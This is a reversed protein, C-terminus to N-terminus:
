NQGLKTSLVLILIGIVTGTSGSTDLFLGEQQSYLDELGAM